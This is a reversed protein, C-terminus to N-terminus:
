LKASEGWKAGFVFESQAKRKRPAAVRKQQDETLTTPDGLYGLAIMAVPAYGEPIGLIETAKAADFGGMQHLYIGLSQAETTLNGVALGVDHFAHRNPKGNQSFNLSAVSLALVPAKMAWSNGPMLCGALKEFDAADDQTAVIFRWPQEGFCSAAWRAAEFLSHLKEPEVKRPAFALPSWREALLPHIPHATVARKDSM